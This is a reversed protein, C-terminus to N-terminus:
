KGLPIRGRLSAWDCLIFGGGDHMRDAIRADITAIFESKTLHNSILVTTKKEDYRRDILRMLILNENESGVRVQWEDLVLLSIKVHQDEYRQEGGGAGWNGRLGAIYSFTKMYKASRGLDCFANVLGGAMHTKGPGIQGCLAYLGNREIAKKLKEVAARYKDISDAPVRSLDSLSADKIGDPLNKTRHCEAVSEARQYRELREQRAEDEEKTIVRMGRAADRAPRGLTSCEAARASQIQRSKEAASQIV